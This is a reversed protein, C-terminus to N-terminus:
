LKVTGAGLAKWQEGGFREYATGHPPLWFLEDGAKQVISPDV